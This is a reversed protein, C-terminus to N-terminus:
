NLQNRALKLTLRYNMVNHMRTTNQFKLFRNGQIHFVIKFNRIANCCCNGNNAVGNSQFCRLRRDRLLPPPTIPLSSFSPTFFITSALLSHYSSHISASSIEKVM